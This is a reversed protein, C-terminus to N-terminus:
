LSVVTEPVRGVHGENDSQFSPPEVCLPNLGQDAPRESNNGRSQYLNQISFMGPMIKSVRRLFENGDKRFIRRELLAQEDTM